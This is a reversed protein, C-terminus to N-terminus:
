PSSVIVHPATARPPLPQPGRFGPNRGCPILKRSFLSKAKFQQGYGTADPEPSAFVGPHLKKGGSTATGRKPITYTFCGFMGNQQSTRTNTQYSKTTSLSQSSNENTTSGIKTAELRRGLQEVKARGFLAPDFKVVDMARIKAMRVRLMQLRNDPEEDSTESCALSSSGTNIRGLELEDDEIPPSHGAAFTDHYASGTISSTSSSASASAPHTYITNTSVPFEDQVEPETNYESIPLRTLQEQGRTAEVEDRHLKWLEDSKRSQKLM